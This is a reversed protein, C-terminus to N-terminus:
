IQRGSPHPNGSDNNKPLNKLIPCTRLKDKSKEIHPNRDRRKLWSKAADEDDHLWDFYANHVLPHEPTSPSNEALWQIADVQRSYFSDLGEITYPWFQVWGAYIAYPWKIQWDLEYVIQSRQILRITHIPALELLRDALGEAPLEWAEPADDRPAGAVISPTFHSEDCPPEIMKVAQLTEDYNLSQVSNRFQRLEGDTLPTVDNYHGLQRCHDFVLQRHNVPDVEIVQQAQTANKHFHSVIITVITAGLLMLWAIAKKM